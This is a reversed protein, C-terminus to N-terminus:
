SLQVAPVPVPVTRSLRIFDFIQEGYFVAM